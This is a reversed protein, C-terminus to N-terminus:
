RQPDGGEATKFFQSVLNMENRVQADWKALGKMTEPIEDTPLAPDTPLAKGLPHRRLAGQLTDLNMISAAATGLQEAVSVRTM